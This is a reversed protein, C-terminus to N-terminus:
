GQGNHSAQFLLVRATDDLHKITKLATRLRDRDRGSLRRVEVANSPPIGQRIDAIQQAILLDLFVGQAEVLADLDQSGGLGLAKVGELRSPTSRERVHHCIALARAATVLGFLGAKKLDIRGKETRFGGLFTLGTEATGASELLLKAFATQGKAVDFAERWLLEALSTDGYVGRMDFFIDVSLLDAPKSRKIWQGIRQRWDSVSGRWQPNRAMVGGKCYPVGVENLIDAVHAGLAAFWRDSDAPAAGDACILANDQDMALLSEGRGASGLVALVYPCPAEGHGEQRLRQEALVATRQTLLGLQHSILAAIEIGSLGEGLLGAAVRPLKAWARGLDYVDAAQDIEDGLEISGEARLRLLDRASLAGVVFGGEDTVGLHRVRLRNMRAMALFAFADAPVTALPRTAMAAAQTQLADAGSSALMRMVDRETVIGAEESSPPQEGADFRVFLSSVREEAMRGLLAALSADRDAFKAPASMVDGVRHRYPYSDVRVSGQALDSGRSTGGGPEIWGARHQKDLADTLANCAREAEALTRIGAERLRPLLALFARAAALADGLASHRDTIEIELWAAVSELSYGALDRTVVEALLRIDLSHPRTWSLGARECERTLVTLDFGVAHGIVVREGIFSALEPWAETFRPANAVAAADIGHIRTAQAPIAVDPQILRRCAADAALRGGEIPVLAIEVIHAKRADLGTTETDIVVADLALLPTASSGIPM